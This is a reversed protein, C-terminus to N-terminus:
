RSPRPSLDTTVIAVALSCCYSLVPILSNSSYLVVDVAALCNEM